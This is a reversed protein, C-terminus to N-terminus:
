SGGTGPGAGGSSADGELRVAERDHEEMVDSLLDTGLREQLAIIREWSAPRLRAVPDEETEETLLNQGIVVVWQDPRVGAIGVTQRGEAVIRVPVFRTPRPDTLAGTGNAAVRMVGGTDPATAVFVGPRGTTPDSYIASSPVVTASDSEGYFVDVTVFMGPVLRGAPNEVDIEAEASFSGQALFPSVRSIEAPILESAYAETSIEVRQGPRIRGILDQAIPVEVRMRELQGITFLPAQGDAIMGVEAARQGVVGDIPARVVTRGVEEAREAIAAEASAARAEAQQVAARASEIQARELEVTEQAVRSDEALLQTRRFQSELETQTAAAARAEARAAALEAQAQALQSRPSRSEIRVLPDGAKVVDGDDAFVETIAGSVQPYIAVQGGAQVTGTLRERLPLADLRAQVVEVAPTSEDRNRRDGEESGGCAAAALVVLTGSLGGAWPRALGAIARPMAEDNM